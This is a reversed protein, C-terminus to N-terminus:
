IKSFMFRSMASIYRLLSLHLLFFELLFLYRGVEPLFFFILTNRLISIFYAFTLVM